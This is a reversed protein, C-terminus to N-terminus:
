GTQSGRVGTLFNIRPILCPLPISNKNFPDYFGGKIFTKKSYLISNIKDIWLKILPMLHVNSGIQTQHLPFWVKCEGFGENNLHLEEKFAADYV